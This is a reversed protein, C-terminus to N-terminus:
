FSQEGVNTFGYVYAGGAIIMAFDEGPTEFGLITLPVATTIRALDSRLMGRRKRWVGRFYRDGGQDEMFLGPPIKHPATDKAVGNFEDERM